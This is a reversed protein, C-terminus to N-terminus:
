FLGVSALLPIKAYHLSVQWRAAWSFVTNWSDLFLLVRHSVRATPIFFAGANALAQESFGVDVSV